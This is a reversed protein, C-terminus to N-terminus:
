LGPVHIPVDNIPHGGAASTQGVSSVDSNLGELTSPDLTGSKLGQGVSAFSGTLRGVGADLKQLLPDHSNHAIKEAVKLEHVAFLMALGAKAVGGLKGGAEKAFRGQTYPNWVFHHFAYYAVGMHAVFRTKDLIAYAPSLPAAVVSVSLAAVVLKRSFFAKSM